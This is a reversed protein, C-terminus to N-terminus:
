RPYIKKDVEPLKWEKTNVDNHERINQLRHCLEERHKENEDNSKTQSEMNNDDILYKM